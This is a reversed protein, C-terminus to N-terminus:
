PVASRRELTDNNPSYLILRLLGLGTMERGTESKNEDEDLEGREGKGTGSM